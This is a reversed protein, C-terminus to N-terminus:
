TRPDLFFAAFQSVCLSTCFESFICSKSYINKRRRSEVFTHILTRHKVSIHKVDAMRFSRLRDRIALSSNCKHLLHRGERISIQYCSVKSVGRSTETKPIVVQIDSRWGSTIRSYGSFKLMYTLPPFSVLLSIRLLPSHLPYLGCRWGRASAGHFTTHASETLSPDIFTRQFSATHRAFSGDMM